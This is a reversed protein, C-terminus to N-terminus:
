DGKFIKNVKGKINQISCALILLLAFLRGNEVPKGLTPCSTLMKDEHFFHTKVKKEPDLKKLKLLDPRAESCVHM